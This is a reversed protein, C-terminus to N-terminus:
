SRWIKRPDACRATMAAVVWCACDIGTVGGAHKHVLRKMAPCTPHLGGRTWERSGTYALPRSELTMGRKKREPLVTPM